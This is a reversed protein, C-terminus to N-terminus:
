ANLVLYSVYADKLNEAFSRSSHSMLSTSTAALVQIPIDCIDMLSVNRVVNKADLCINPAVL